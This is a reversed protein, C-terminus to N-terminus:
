NVIAAPACAPVGTVITSAVTIAVAIAYAVAVALCAGTPCLRLATLAADALFLPPPAIDSQGSFSYLNQAPIVSSSRTLFAILMISYRPPHRQYCPLPAELVIGVCYERHEFPHPLQHPVPGHLCAPHLWVILCVILIAM